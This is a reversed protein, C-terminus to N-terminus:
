GLFFISLCAISTIVCWSNSCKCLMYIFCGTVALFAMVVFIIDRYENKRNNTDDMNDTTTATDNNNNDDLFLTTANGNNDYTDGLHNPVHWHCIM